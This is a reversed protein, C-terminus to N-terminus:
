NDLFREKDQPHPVTCYNNKGFLKYRNLAIRDYLWDRFSKNIFRFVYLYSWPPALQSMVLLFADSKTFSSSGRVVLMTDFTQTPMGFWALIQKGQESQVSCLKFKHEKDYKILFNCWWNCLKCVWDFLVVQDNERIYPPLTM